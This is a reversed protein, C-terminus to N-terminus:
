RDQLGTLKPSQRSYALASSPKRLRLRRARGVAVMGLALLTGTTVALFIDVRTLVSLDMIQNQSLAVPTIPTFGAVGQVQVLYIGRALSNVNIQHDKGFKFTQRTGDPYQLLISKGVPFGLFADKASIQASFLLLQITWVDGPHAYFRQQAQSVVNSGDVQVNMVSYQIQVVELGGVRRTVLSAPMWRPQGDNFTYNTGQSSRMTISTIRSLDVSRNQLDVFTQGVKASVALGVQVPKDSPINVDRYPTFVEDVWRNFEIRQNSSSDNLPLVQLTYTGVRNVSIHALGDSGSTFVQDGLKFNVGPLAPICQVELVYPSIVLKTTNSSPGYQRTGQYIAKLTYTGATYDTNVTIVAQGQTNTRAQGEFLGGVLLNISQDAIPTGNDTTLVATVPFTKGLAQPPVPQLKLLTAPPPLVGIRQKVPVAAEVVHSTDMVLGGVLLLSAILVFLLRKM